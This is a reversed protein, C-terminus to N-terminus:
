ASSKLLSFNCQMKRKLCSATSAQMGCVGKSKEVSVLDRVLHAQQNRVAQPLLLLLLRKDSSARSYIEFRCSKVFDVSLIEKKRMNRECEGRGRQTIQQWVFHFSPTSRTDREKGDKADFASTSNTPRKRNGSRALQCYGEKRALGKM